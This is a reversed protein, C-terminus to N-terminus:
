DDAALFWVRRQGDYRYGLEKLRDKQQRFLQRDVTPDLQIEAELPWLLGFLEQDAQDPDDAAEEPETGADTKAAEEESGEGTGGEETDEKSPATTTVPPQEEAPDPEVPEAPVDDGTRDLIMDDLQARIETVARGAAVFSAQYFKTVVFQGSYEGPELQEILADKVSFEGIDTALNGVNFQGNRGTITRVTLSGNITIPM